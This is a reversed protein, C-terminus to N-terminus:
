LERPWLPMPLGLLTAVAWVALVSIIVTAIMVAPRARLAYGATIAAALATAPLLGLPQIALAFAAAAALVAFLPWLSARAVVRQRVIGEVAVIVGLVTLLAALAFPMERPGMSFGRGSPLEFSSIIAAGAVGILLVGLAAV